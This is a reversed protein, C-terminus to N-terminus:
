KYTLNFDRKLDVNRTKLWFSPLSLPWVGRNLGSSHKYWSACSNSAYTRNASWRDIDNEFKKLVEKKVEVTEINEEVVQRLITMIHNVVCEIMFIISNHVLGTNAGVVVFFNPFEDVSVGYYASGGQEQLKHLMNAGNRGVTEFGCVSEFVKFGTAYVILDADIQQGSKTLIGAENIEKPSETVLTANPKKVFIPWFDNVVLIRKCGITYDPVASKILEENGNLQDKIFKTMFRKQLMTFLTEKEKFFFLHASENGLFVQLRMLKGVIWFSTLIKKFWEPWHIQHRPFHWNPTRQFVHLSKVKDVIAPAIQVASAASGIIAVRKNTYDYSEDWDQSHFQKGKFKDMGPIKPYNRERLPGCCSMVHTCM